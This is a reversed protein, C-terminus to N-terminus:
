PELSIPTMATRSARWIFPGTGSTLPQIDRWRTMFVELQGWKTKANAPQPGGDRAMRANVANIENQNEIIKSDRTIILWGRAAVVPIWDEDLVNTGTVPCPPRQRKHICAGLDAPDTDTSM